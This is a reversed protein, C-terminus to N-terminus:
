SHSIMPLVFIGIAKQWVASAVPADELINIIDPLVDRMVEKSVDDHIKILRPLAIPMNIFAMVWNCLMYGTLPFEDLDYKQKYVEIISPLQEDLYHRIESITKVLVDVEISKFLDQYIHNDYVYRPSDHMIDEITEVSYGTLDAILATVM